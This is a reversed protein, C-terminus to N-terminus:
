TKGRTGAQSQEGRPRAGMEVGKRSAADRGLERAHRAREARAVLKRRWDDHGAAARRARAAGKV